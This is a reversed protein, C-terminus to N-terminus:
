KTPAIHTTTTSLITPVPSLSWKLNTRGGCIIVKEEFHLEFLVSHPSPMWGTLNVLEEWKRSKLRGNKLPFRFTSIIEESSVYGSKCSVAAYKNVM